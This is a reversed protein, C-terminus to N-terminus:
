GLSIEWLIPLIQPALALSKSRAKSSIPRPVAAVAGQCCAQEAHEYIQIGDGRVFCIQDQKCKSKFLTYSKSSKFVFCLFLVPRANLTSFAKQPTKQRSIRSTPVVPAWPHCPLQLIVHFAPFLIGLLSHRSLSPLLWLHCSNAQSHPPAPVLVPEETM